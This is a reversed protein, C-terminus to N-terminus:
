EVPTSRAASARAVADMTWSRASADVQRWEGKRRALPAIAVTEGDIRVAHPTGPFTFSGTNLVLSGRVMWAGAKHSHGAVSVLPRPRGALAAHEAAREIFRASLEPFMRWWGIVQPFTWPRAAMGALVEVTGAAEELAREAISAARAAHLSREPEPTGARAAHEAHFAEAARRAHRAWPAIAPHFAHGHTVLVRGDARWALLDGSGPDHNGEIRVMVAGARRIVDGLAGIADRARSALRSTSEEAADGNIIVETCGEIVPALADPAPAGAVGLHLDSLVLIM